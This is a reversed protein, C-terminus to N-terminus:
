VRVSGVKSLANFTDLIGQHIGITKFPLKPNEGCYFELQKKNELIIPVKHYDLSIIMKAINHLTYKHDYSCNIEKELDNNYIYHDVLTVLDKMYFFDMIKNTHIVLPEKNIYRVLSSRIFRTPLENEDFVAFIRLNYWNCIEQISDAIIKKSMGYPTTPHFLEAGSGFNILKTFHSKNAKLNYFMMLNQQITSQDDIQLRSGGVVATHIVVDFQRDKFWECTADHKTLDFDKRGVSTVDHKNQLGCHLARAIYGNGGTILINM